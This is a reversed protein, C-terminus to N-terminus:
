KFRGRVGAEHAVIQQNHRRGIQQAAAGEGVRVDRCHGIVERQAPEGFQMDPIQHDVLIVPDCPQAPDFGQGPLIACAGIGDHQAKGTVRAPKDRRALGIADPTVPAIVLCDREVLEVPRRPLAPAGFDLRCQGFGGLPEDREGGRTGIAGGRHDLGIRRGIFAEGGSEGEGFGRILRARNGRHAIIQGRALRHVPQHDAIDAVALGFHRQASGREDRQASPLGHDGRRGGHKDALVEREEGAPEFAAADRDCAKRAERGRGFPLRDLCPKGVPRDLDHDSGRRNRRFGDPIGVQLEDHDVLLLAEARCVLRPQAAQVVPM